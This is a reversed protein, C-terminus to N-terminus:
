MRELFSNPNDDLVESLVGKELGSGLAVAEAEEYTILDEPSHADTNVVLKAGKETAFRAVRGNTLSHGKRSTIELCTDTEVALEAEKRSLLGPHALLDVEECKMSAINTGPPVPEVVTEGHVVVLKVGLDRAMEAYDPLLSLPLHTLEVGPIVKIDMTENIKEAARLTQKAVPEINSPGVHDTIGIAKYGLDEARRALEIPLLEGDTLFTHTHLDIRRM